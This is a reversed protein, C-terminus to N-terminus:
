ATHTGGSVAVQAASHTGSMTRASEASRRWTSLLTHSVTVKTNHNVPSSRTIPSMVRTVGGKAQHRTTSSDPLEDRPARLTRAPLSNGSGLGAWGHPHQPPSQSLSHSRQPLVHEDPRLPRPRLTSPTEPRLAPPTEPRLPGQPALYPVPPTLSPGPNRPLQATTTHTTPTANLPPAITTTNTQINYTPDSATGSVAVYAM